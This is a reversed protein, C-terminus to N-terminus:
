PQPVVYRFVMEMVKQQYRYCKELVHHGFFNRVQILELTGQQHDSNGARADKKGRHCNDGERSFFRAERQSQSKIQTKFTELQEEPRMVQVKKAPACLLVVARPHKRHRYMLSYNSDSLNIM